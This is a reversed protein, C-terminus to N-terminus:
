NLEAFFEEIDLDRLESQSSELKIVRLGEESVYNTKLNIKANRFYSDIATRKTNFRSNAKIAAIGGAILVIAHQYWRSQLLSRLKNVKLHFSQEYHMALIERRESVMLLEWIQCRTMRPKTPADVDIPVDTPRPVEYPCFCRPAKNRHTLLDREVAFAISSAKRGQEYELGKSIYKVNTPSGEIRLEKYAQAPTLSSHAELCSPFELGLQHKFAVRWRAIGIAAAKQASCPSPEERARKKCDMMPTPLLTPSSPCTMAQTHAGTADALPGQFNYIVHFTMVHFTVNDSSFCNTQPASTVLDEVKTM